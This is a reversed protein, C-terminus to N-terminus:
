FPLDDDIRPADIPTVDRTITKPAPSVVAVPVYVVCEGGLREVLRAAEAKAQGITGHEHFSYGNTVRLVIPGSGLTVSERGDIRTNDPMLMGEM